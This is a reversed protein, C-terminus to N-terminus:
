VDEGMELREFRPHNLIPAVVDGGEGLVDSLRGAFRAVIANMTNVEAVLRSADRTEWYHTEDHVDVAFGLTGAQDLVRVLQTHCAILHAESVVSAYQTKCSCRWYWEAQTHNVDARRLLGFTATECGQGANVFFAQATQPDGELRPLTEEYPTAVLSAWFRLAALDGDAQGHEVYVPSVRDFALTNAFTHLATLM